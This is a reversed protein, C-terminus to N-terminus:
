LQHLSRTRAIIASFPYQDSTEVSYLLKYHFPLYEDKRAVRIVNM